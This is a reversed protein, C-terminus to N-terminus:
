NEILARVTKQWKKHGARASDEYDPGVRAADIQGHLDSGEGEAPFHFFCEHATRAM